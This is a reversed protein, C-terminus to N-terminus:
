DLKSQLLLELKSKNYGLKNKDLKSMEQWKSEWRNPKQKNLELRKWEQRKELFKLKNNLFDKSM